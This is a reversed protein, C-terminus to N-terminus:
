YVCQSLAHLKNGRKRGKPDRQIRFEQSRIIWAYTLLRYLSVAEQYRKMTVAKWRVNTNQDFFEQPQDHVRM